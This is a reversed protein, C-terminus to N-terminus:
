EELLKTAYQSTKQADALINDIQNPMNLVNEKSGMFWDEHRDHDYNQKSM